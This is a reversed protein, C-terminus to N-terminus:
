REGNLSWGRDGRVASELSVVYDGQHSEGLEEIAEDALTFRIEVERGLVVSSSPDFLYSWGVKVEMLRYLEKNHPLKLKVAMDLLERAGNKVQNTRRDLISRLQAPAFNRPLARRTAENSVSAAVFASVDREGLFNLVQQALATLTPDETSTITEGKAAMSKLDLLADEAGLLGTPFSTWGM